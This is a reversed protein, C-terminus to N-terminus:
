KKGFSIPVVLSLLVNYFNHASSILADPTAVLLQPDSHYQLAESYKVPISRWKPSGYVMWGNNVDDILFSQSKNYFFINLEGAVNLSIGKYLNIGAGAGFYNVLVNDDIYIGNMNRGNGVDTFGLATTYTSTLRMHSSVMKIYANYSIKAYDDGGVTPKLGLNM